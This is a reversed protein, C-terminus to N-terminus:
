SRNKQSKEVKLITMQTEKIREEKKQNKKYKQKSKILNKFKLTKIGFSSSPTNMFISSNIRTSVKKDLRTLISKLNKEAEMTISTEVSFSTEVFKNFNDM